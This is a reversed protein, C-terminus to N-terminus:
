AFILGLVVLAFPLPCLACPRLPSLSFPFPVPVDTRRSAGRVEIREQDHASAGTVLGFRSRPGLRLRLAPRETGKVKERKGKRGQARQGRGKGRTTTRDGTSS